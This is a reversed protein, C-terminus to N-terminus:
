DELKLAFIDKGDKSNDETKKLPIKYNEAFLDKGEKTLFLIDLNDAFVYAFSFLLCMLFHEARNTVLSISVFDCHSVVIHIGSHGPSSFLHYHLTTFLYLAVSPRM